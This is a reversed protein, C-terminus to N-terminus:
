KRCFGWFASNPIRFSSYFEPGCARNTLTASFIENRMGREANRMIKFGDRWLVTYMRLLYSTRM